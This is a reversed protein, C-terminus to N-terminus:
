FGRPSRPWHLYSNDDTCLTFPSFHVGRQATGASFATFLARARQVEASARGFRTPDRDLIADTGSGSVEYLESQRTMGLEFDRKQDPDHRQYPQYASGNESREHQLGESHSLIGGHEHSRGCTKDRSEEQQSAHIRLHRSFSLEHGVDTPNEFGTGRGGRAHM